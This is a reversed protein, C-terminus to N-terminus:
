CDRSSERCHATCNRATTVPGSFVYKSRASSDRPTVVSRCASCILDSITYPYYITYQLRRISTETVVPLRAAAVGVGTVVANWSSMRCAAALPDRACAARQQRQQEQITTTIATTTTAAAIAAGHMPDRCISRMMAKM